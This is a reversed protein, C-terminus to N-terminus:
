QERPGAGAAECEVQEIDELDAKAADLAGQAVKVQAAYKAIRAQADAKPTTYVNM